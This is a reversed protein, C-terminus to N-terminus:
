ADKRANEESIENGKKVKTDVVEVGGPTVTKNPKLFVVLAVVITIVCITIALNYLNFMKKIKRLKKNIKM